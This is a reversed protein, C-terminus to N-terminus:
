AKHALGPAGGTIMTLLGDAIGAVAAMQM